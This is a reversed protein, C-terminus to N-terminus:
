ARRAKRLRDLQSEGRAPEGKKVKARAAPTAGLEALCDLLLPALWRMAWASTHARNGCHPNDCAACCGDMGDITGAYERALKVAAADTEALGLAAITQDVATRLLTSADRLM